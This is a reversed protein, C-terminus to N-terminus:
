KHTAQIPSEGVVKFSGKMGLMEHPTCVYQYEGPVFRDDMVLDYTQGPALLFPGVLLDDLKAGKPMGKFQVNHPAVDTQEFRLTDGPKVSVTQPDFRWVGPGKAVMKVVVTEPTTSQAQATSFSFLLLLTLFGLAGTYRSLTKM